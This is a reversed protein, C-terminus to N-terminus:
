DRTASGGEIKETGLEHGNHSWDEVRCWVGEVTLKKSKNDRLAACESVKVSKSESELGSRSREM